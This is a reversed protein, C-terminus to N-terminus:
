KWKAEFVSFYVPSHKTFDQALTQVGLTNKIQLLLVEKKRKMKESVLGVKEKFDYMVAGLLVDTLQMLNNSHSEISLAGFVMNPSIGQYQPKKTHRIKNNIKEMLADELTLQKSNPKSIEDVLLCINDGSLNSMERLMLTAAYSIFADWTDNAFVGSFSPHNKDVIMASFRNNKNSFFIDVMKQYYQILSPRVNDFKMEFRKSNSLIKIVEDKKNSSLLRTIAADKNKGRINQASQRNKTLLHSITGVDKIILFGVGFFRDKKIVGSSDSFAFRNM